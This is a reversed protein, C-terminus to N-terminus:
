RHIETLVALKQGDTVIPAAADDELCILVLVVQVLLLWWDVVIVIHLELRVLALNIVVRTLLYWFHYRLDAPRVLGSLRAEKRAISACDLQPGELLAELM